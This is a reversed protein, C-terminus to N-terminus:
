GQMQKRFQLAKRLSTFNKSVRIGNSQVRVRYSNGERQINSPNKAKM